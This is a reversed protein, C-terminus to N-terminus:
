PWYIEGLFVDGWFSVGKPDLLIKQASVTQSIVYGKVQKQTWVESSTQNM